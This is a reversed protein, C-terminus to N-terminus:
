LYYGDWYGVVLELCGHASKSSILPGLVIYYGLSIPKRKKRMRIKEMMRKNVKMTKTVKMHIKMMIM